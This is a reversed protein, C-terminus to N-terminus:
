KKMPRWYVPYESGRDFREYYIYDGIRYPIPQDEQKERHLFEGILKAQLDETDAMVKKAYENEEELYAIVDPNDRERLWYYDDIRTHGHLSLKTPIKKAIPLTFVACSEQKRPCTEMFFLALSLLTLQFIMYGRKMPFVGM